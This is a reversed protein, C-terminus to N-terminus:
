RGEFGALIEDPLPDDFDDPVHLQGALTGLQRPQKVDTIPVLRAAPKGGMAIIV